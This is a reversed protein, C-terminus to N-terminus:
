FSMMGVPNFGGNKHVWEVWILQKFATDGFVTVNPTLTDLYSNPTLFVIWSVVQDSWFFSCLAKLGYHGPVQFILQILKAGPFEEADFGHAFERSSRRFIQRPSFARNSKPLALLFHQKPYFNTEPYFPWVLSISAVKTLTWWEWLEICGKRWRGLKGWSSPTAKWSPNSNRM